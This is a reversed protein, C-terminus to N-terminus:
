GLARMIVEGNKPHGEDNPEKGDIVDMCMKIFKGHGVVVIIEDTMGYLQTVFVTARNLLDRLSEGGEYQVDMFESVNWKSEKYALFKKWNEEHGVLNMYHETILNSITHHQASPIGLEKSIENMTEIARTWPSIIFTVELLNSNLQNLQTKLSKSASIADNKGKPTLRIDEENKSFHINVDANAESQGHRVFFVTKM